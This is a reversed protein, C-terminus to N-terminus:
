AYDEDRMNQIKWIRGYLGDRASLEEHTGSDALRGDELVFIRDAEMLTGIRQSIIFTTAGGARKKLSARIRADTEPDVASLSDDFILVDSQKILTRAIALRQKQGGSLTVGKEGVMTEYGKEFQNITEHIAATEAAEEMEPDNAGRKAMRLNERITKSYLFPEQLVIGIRSRLHDKKIGRLERGNITITGEGYEYLRLLLHMATTKGSGTAGLLAITEGKRVAFSLGNLVPRNKEYAFTVNDFVIDGDLRNSVAGPTDTEAPTNLIEGVRDQSVEMKGLDSLIRGLQRVPYILMGEYSLFVLLTGVTISGRLALFIGAFLVAGIQLFTLADTLSWFRAMVNMMKVCLFRFEENKSEFKEAEFRQMGFARVVRVGSLNEQLAATLEGEKEDALTFHKRISKFYKLSVIFMPPVTVVAVLTYGAHLSLMISVSYAVVCLIRAIEVLQMSLFRRITEVDSTCRQILDGTKATMHYEYPVRQLRDYLKDKLQKAFEDAGKATFKGRFFACIGNGAAAAVVMLGCIWLDGALRTVGGAAEVLIVIFWPAELPGKNIVSDITVKVVMPPIVNFFAALMTAAM